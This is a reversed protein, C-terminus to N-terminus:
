PGGHTSCGEVDCVQVSWCFRLVADACYPEDHQQLVELCAAEDAGVLGACCQGLSECAAGSSAARPTASPPGDAPPGGPDVGGVGGGGVGGGGVGGGGIPWVPLQSSPGPGERMPRPHGTGSCGTAGVLLAVSLLRLRTSLM